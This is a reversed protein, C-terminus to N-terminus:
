QKVGNVWTETRETSGDENFYVWLGDEKGDKFTRTFEIFGDTNYPEVLGDYNGDKYTTKVSLQGNQHFQEDLGQEVGDTFNTKGMVNGNSWYDEWLGVLQGNKMKGKELGSIKGTFLVDTFKKYYLGNSEVLEEVTESWSPSSLFSIFVVLLVKITNNM